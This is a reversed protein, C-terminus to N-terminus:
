FWCCVERHQGGNNLENNHRTAPCAAPTLKFAHCVCACSVDEPTRCHLVDSRLNAFATRGASASNQAFPILRIKSSVDYREGRLDPTDATSAVDEDPGDVYHAEDFPENKLLQPGSGSM